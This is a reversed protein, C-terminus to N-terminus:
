NNQGTRKTIMKKGAPKQRSPLRNHGIISDITRSVFNLSQTLPDHRELTTACSGRSNGIPGGPVGPLFTQDTPDSDYDAQDPNEEGGTREPSVV